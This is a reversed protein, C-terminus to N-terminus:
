PTTPQRIEAEAQESLVAHGDRPVDGDCDDFSRASAAAQGNATKSTLVKEVLHKPTYIEPAAFRGPPSKGLPAACQGCFNNEPSNSAGCSSYVAVLPAACQGCFKM